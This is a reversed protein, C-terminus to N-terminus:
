GMPSSAAPPMMDHPEVEAPGFVKTMVGNRYLYGTVEYSARWVESQVTLQPVFMEVKPTRDM